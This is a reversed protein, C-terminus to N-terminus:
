IGLIVNRPINYPDNRKYETAKHRRILKHNEFSTDGDLYARLINDAEEYSEVGLQDLDSNSIGLGDTCIADRCLKLGERGEDSMKEKELLYDVMKYEETKWLNQIMGFNGTDGNITWFGCLLETYNDTSLVMGNKSNALDYLYIMRVRAKINGRRIKGLDDEDLISSDSQSIQSVMSMYGEKLDLEKFDNCFSEGVIRARNEEDSKNTIISLSRGILPIGINDCVKKALVSCLASDIGGSVGVVLCELNNRKLYNGLEERIIRIARKYNTIM